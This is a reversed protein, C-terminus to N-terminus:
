LGLAFFSGKKYSAIPFLGFSHFTYNWSFDMGVGHFTM